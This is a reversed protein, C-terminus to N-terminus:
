GPTASVTTRSLGVRAAADLATVTRGHTSERHARILLEDPPTSSRLLQHLAVYLDQKTACDFEQDASTLVINDDADIDITLQVPETESPGTSDRAGERLPLSAQMAISATLIFFILLLFTVDVMPTLDITGDRERDNRQLPEYNV